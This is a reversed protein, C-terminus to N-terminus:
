EILVGGAVIQEADREGTQGSVFLGDTRMGGPAPPLDSNEAHAGTARACKDVRSLRNAARRRVNAGTGAFQSLVALHVRPGSWRSGHRRVGKGRGTAKAPEARWNGGSVSSATMTEPSGREPVEMSICISTAPPSM